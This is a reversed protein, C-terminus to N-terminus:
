DTIRYIAIDHSCYSVSPPQDRTFMPWIPYNYDHKLASHLHEGFGYMNQCNHFAAIQLFQDAFTLGGISTDWRCFYFKLKMALFKGLVHLLM